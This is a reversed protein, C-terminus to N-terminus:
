APAAHITGHPNDLGSRLFHGCARVIIQPQALEALREQAPRTTLWDLDDMWVSGGERVLPVYHEVDFLSAEESHNGDIHLFDLPAVEQIGPLAEESTAHILRVYSSLGLTDVYAQCQRMMDPYMQARGWFERNAGAPDNKDDWGANSAEPLWPDIGYVLGQGLERLALAIVVLSRGSFVGIEVCTRAQINLVNRAISAAKDAECWGDMKPMIHRIFSDIQPPLNM